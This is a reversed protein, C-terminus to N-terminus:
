EDMHKIDWLWRRFWGMHALMADCREKYIDRMTQATKLEANRIDLKVDLERIRDAQKKITGDKEAVEIKLRKNEAELKAYKVKLRGYGGNPKKQGNEM